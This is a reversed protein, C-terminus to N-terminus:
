KSSHFPSAPLGDQNYLNCVPDDAWGYRVRLPASVSPSSVMVTTGEIRAEAAV